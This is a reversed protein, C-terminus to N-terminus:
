NHKYVLAISGAAVHRWDGYRRGTGDAVLGAIRMVIDNENHRWQRWSMRVYPCRVMNLIGLYKGLRHFWVAATVWHSLCHTVHAVHLNWEPKFSHSLIADMTTLRQQVVECLGTNCHAHWTSTIALRTVDLNQWYDRKHSIPWTFRVALLFVTNCHKVNNWTLRLWPLIYIPWPWRHTQRDTGRRM